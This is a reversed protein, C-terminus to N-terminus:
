SIENPCIRLNLEFKVGLSKLPMRAVLSEFEETFLPFEIRNENKYFLEEIEVLNVVAACDPACVKCENSGDPAYTGM